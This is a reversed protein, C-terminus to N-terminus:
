KKNIQFLCMTVVGVVGGITLGLIFKLMPRRGRNRRLNQM